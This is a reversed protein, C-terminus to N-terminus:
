TDRPVLDDCGALTALGVVAVLLTIRDCRSMRCGALTGAPLGVGAYLGVRMQGVTREATRTLKKAADVFNLGSRNDYIMHYPKSIIQLTLARGSRSDEILIPHM